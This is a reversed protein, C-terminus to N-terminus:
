TTFMSVAAVRPLRTIFQIMVAIKRIGIMFVARLAAVKTIRIMFSMGPLVIIVAPIIMTTMCPKMAADSMGIQKKRGHTCHIEVVGNNRIIM